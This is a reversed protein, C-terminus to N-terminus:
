KTAMSGCIDGEDAHAQPSTEEEVKICVIELTTINKYYYM